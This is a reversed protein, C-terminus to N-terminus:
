LIEYKCKYVNSIEIFIKFFVNFKFDREREEREDFSYIYLYQMYYKNKFMIYFVQGVFFM